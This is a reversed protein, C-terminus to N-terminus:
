GHHVEVLKRIGGRSCLCEYWGLKETFKYPVQCNPCHTWGKRKAMRKINISLAWGKPEFKVDKEPLKLGYKDVAVKLVEKSESESLCSRGIESCTKIGESISIAEWISGGTGTHFCCYSNTDTYVKFNTGTACGCSPCKVLDSSFINTIPISNIDEGEWDIKERKYEKKKKLYRGFVEIFDKFEIEVIPVDVRLDYIEGSPHVCHPGVAMQGKGLLEGIRKDENDYFIIKKGNWGKLYIYKHVGRVQMTEPFYKEYLKILLQRSDDDDLVGLQNDGTLTGYNEGILKRMVEYPYNNKTTWEKEFPAKEKYKIRCFVQDKLQIPIEM